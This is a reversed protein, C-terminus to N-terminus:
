YTSNHNWAKIEKRRGLYLRSSIELKIEDPWFVQKVHTESCPGKGRWVMSESTVIAGPVVASHDGPFLTFETIYFCLEQVIKLYFPFGWLLPPKSLCMARHNLAQAVTRASSAPDTGLEWVPAWMQRNSWNWLIQCGRRVELPMLCACLACVYVWSFCGYMHFWTFGSVSIKRDYINKNAHVHTVTDTLTIHTWAQPPWFLADCGKCRSNYTVTLWRIRTGPGKSSCCTSKVASGLVRLKKKLLQGVLRLRCKPLPPLFVM